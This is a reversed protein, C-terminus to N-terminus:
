SEESGATFPPALYGGSPRPTLAVRTGRRKARTGRHEAARVGTESRSSLRHPLRRSGRGTPGSHGDEGRVRGRSMTGPIESSPFRLDADPIRIPLDELLFPMRRPRELGQHLAPWRTPDDQLRGGLREPDGIRRLSAAVFHPHYGCRQHLREPDTRTPDLGVLAVRARQALHRAADIQRRHMDRGWCRALELRYTSGALFQDLDSRLQDVVNM